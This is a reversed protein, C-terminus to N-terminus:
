TQREAVVLRRPAGALRAPAERAEAVLVGAAVSGVQLELEQRNRLIGRYVAMQREKWRPTEESSLLAFGAGALMAELEAPRPVWTTMALRGGQQLIRGMEQIAAPKDLVMWFADVSMVAHQSRSPLGTDSFSGVAFAAAHSMGMQDRLHYAQEIAEALIDIGTLLSGTKRAVWLGPGGRGSGIDALRSQNCLGLESDISELDSVTVFGFPDADEPYDEQYAERWIKILLPAKARTRLIERYRDERWIEAM